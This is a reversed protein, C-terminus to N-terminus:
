IKQFYYDKCIRGRLKRTLLHFVKISTAYKPSAYTKAQLISVINSLSEIIKPIRLYNSRWTHYPNPGNRLFFVTRAQHLNPWGPWVMLGSWTRARTRLGCRQCSSYYSLMFLTVNNKQPASIEFVTWKVVNCLHTFSIKVFKWHWPPPIWLLLCVLNKTPTKKKGEFNTSQTLCYM